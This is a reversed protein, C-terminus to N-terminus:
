CGLSRCVMNYQASSLYNQRLLEDLIAVIENNTATINGAEREGYLLKLRNLLDNINSPLFQIGFGSKPEEEVDKEEEDTEYAEELHKLINTYKKTSKPKDTSKKTLPNFIVQTKEVIDEYLKMDEATYNQPNKLMILEWLGPTGEFRDGDIHINSQDDIDVNKSGMIYGTKSKQIGYYDDKNSKLNLYYDIAKKSFDKNWYGKESETVSRNKKIDETIKATSEKTAQVVPTFAKELQIQRQMGEAKDNLSKEKLQKVTEIYDNVIKDREHPNKIEIFSM